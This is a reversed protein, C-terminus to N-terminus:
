GFQAADARGVEAVFRRMRAPDKIGPADRIEIGSSVDVGWCATTRIAEFVNEPTLGGAVLFPRAFDDPVRAWDFTNGSGGAEGKAHSNFLFAVARPWRVILTELRGGTRDEGAHDEGSQNEGASGEGGMAVAKMYPLGFAACFADNEDGHFQLLSPRVREIAESVEDAPNDMFLAVTDVFPPLADRIGAAADPTVRRKSRAAFILGIADVGLSAALLADEVRTMGCFKIRTRQPRRAANAAFKPTAIESM